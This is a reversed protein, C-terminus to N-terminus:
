QVYTFTTLVRTEDFAFVQAFMEGPTCVFKHTGTDVDKAAYKSIIHQVRQPLIYVLLAAGSVEILDCGALKTSSSPDQCWIATV